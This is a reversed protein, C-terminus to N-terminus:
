PNQLELVDAQNKATSSVPKTALVMKLGTAAGINLAEVIKGYPTEEDAYLAVYNEQEEQQAVLSLFQTLEEPTMPRPEASEGYAAHYVQDRDIYVRTGPKIATSQSSQPLNVELGNPFVFSSTAMFFILLLFIVDTMSAMSFTATVRHHRKLM